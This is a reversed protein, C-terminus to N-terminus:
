GHGRLLIEGVIGGGGGGGGGPPPIAGAGGGGGPPGWPIGPPKLITGPKPSASWSAMLFIDPTSSIAGAASPKLVNTIVMKTGLTDSHYFSRFVTFDANSSM